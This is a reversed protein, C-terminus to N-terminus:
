VSTDFIRGRGLIPAGQKAKEAFPAVDGLVQGKGVESSRRASNHLYAGSVFIIRVHVRLETLNCRMGRDDDLYLRRLVLAVTVGRPLDSDLKSIYTRQVCNRFVQNHSWFHLERRMLAMKLYPKM